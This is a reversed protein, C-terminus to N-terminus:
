CRDMSPKGRCISLLDAAGLHVLRTMARKLPTLHSWHALIATLDNDVGEDILLCRNPPHRLLPRLVFSRILRLIRLPCLSVMPLSTTCFLRIIRSGRDKGIPDRKNPIYSTTIISHSTPYLLLPIPHATRM